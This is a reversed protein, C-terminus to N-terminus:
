QVLLISIVKSAVLAPDGDTVSVSLPLLEDITLNAPLTVISTESPGVITTAVVVNGSSPSDIILDVTAPAPATNTYNVVMIKRIESGSPSVLSGSGTRSNQLGSGPIPQGYTPAHIRAYSQILTNISNIDSSTTIDLFIPEGAALIQQPTISSISLGQVLTNFQSPLQIVGAEQYV